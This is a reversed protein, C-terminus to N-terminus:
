EAPWTERAIRLAAQFDTEQIRGDAIQQQYFEAPLLMDGHGVRQMLRAAEIFHRDSLGLFPNVAVFNKLSWLPPIRKAASQVIDAQKLPTKKSSNQLTTMM